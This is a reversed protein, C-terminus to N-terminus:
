APRSRPRARHPSTPTRKKLRPSDGSFAAPLSRIQTRCLVKNAMPPTMTTAATASPIQPNVPLEEDAAVAVLSTSVTVVVVIRWVTGAVPM